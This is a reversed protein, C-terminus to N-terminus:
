NGGFLRSMLGGGQDVGDMAREIYDLAFLQFNDGNSRAKYKKAAKFLGEKGADIYRNHKGHDGQARKDSLTTLLPQFARVLSNKANRDGLKLARVDRAIATAAAAATSPQGDQDLKLSIKM